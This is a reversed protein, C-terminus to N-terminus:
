AIKNTIMNSNPSLHVNCEIPIHIKVLRMKLDVNIVMSASYLLILINLNKFFNIMTKLCYQTSLYM